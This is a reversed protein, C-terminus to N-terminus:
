QRHKVSVVIMIPNIPGSVTYEIPLMQTKYIKEESMSLLSFNNGRIPLKETFFYFFIFCSSM